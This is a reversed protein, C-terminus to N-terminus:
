FRSVFTSLIFIQLLLLKTKASLGHMDANNFCFKKKKFVSNQSCTMLRIGSFSSGPSRGYKCRM